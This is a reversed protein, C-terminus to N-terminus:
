WLWGVCPGQKSGGEWLELSERPAATPASPLHLLLPLASGGLSSSYFACGPSAAPPKLPLRCYKVSKSVVWISVMGRTTPGKPTRLLVDQIGRGLATAFSGSQRFSHIVAQVRVDVGQCLSNGRSSSGDEQRGVWKQLLVMQKPFTDGCAGGGPLTPCAEQAGGRWEICNRILDYRGRWM